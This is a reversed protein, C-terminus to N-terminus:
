SRFPFVQLAQGVQGCGPQLALFRIATRIGPQLGAAPVDARFCLAPSQQHKARRSQLCRRLLRQDPRRRQQGRCANGFCRQLRSGPRQSDGCAECCSRHRAQSRCAERSRTEGCAQGGTEGRAQGGTEGCAERGRTEGCAQGGTEGCAEGGAQSRAQSRAQRSRNEGRAQGGTEGCAEGGAQSRAERSRNEGRAQGGTEGCAEGGAQSRAQSRAQRS